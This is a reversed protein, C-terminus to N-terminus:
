GMFFLQNTYFFRGPLMFLILYSLLHTINLVDGRQLESSNCLQSFVANPKQNLISFQKQPLMRSTTDENKQDGKITKASPTLSKTQTRSDTCRVHTFAICLSTSLECKRMCVPLEQAFRRSRLEQWPDPFLVLQLYGRLASLAAAALFSTLTVILIDKKEWRM